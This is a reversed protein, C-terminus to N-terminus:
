EPRVYVPFPSRLIRCSFLSIVTIIIRWAFLKRRHELPRYTSIQRDFHPHIVLSNPLKLTGSGSGTRTGYSVARLIHIEIRIERSYMLKWRSAQWITIKAFNPGLGRGEREPRYPILGPGSPIASFAHVLADTPLVYAGLPRASKQKKPYAFGRTGEPVSGFHVLCINM